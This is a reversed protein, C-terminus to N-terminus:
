RYGELPLRTMTAPVFVLDDLSPINRQFTSFGRIQYRGLLAKAQIDAISEPTWRPSDGRDYSAPTGAPRGEVAGNRFAALDGPSTDLDDAM